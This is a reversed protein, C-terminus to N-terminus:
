RGLQEEIPGGDDGPLGPCLGAGRRDFPQKHGGLRCEVPGLGNPPADGDHKRAKTCRAVSLVRPEALVSKRSVLHPRKVADDM